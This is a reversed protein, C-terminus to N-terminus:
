SPTSRRAPVVLLLPRQGRRGPHGARRRRRHRPRRETRGRRVQRHGGPHPRKGAVPLCARHRHHRPTAMFESSSTATTPSCWWRCALGPAKVERALEVADMDGPQSRPSSSISARSAEAGAGAGRRRELCPHPRADPPPQARPVRRRHAREAPRGARAHVFRLPELCLIDQVRYPMLDQFGEFLSGTDQPGVAPHQGDSWARTWCRTPWRAHLRRHQRRERLQGPHRVSRPRSAAPPDRDHDRALRDDVEERTWALRMSNQSMELGSTAVGGANAAKAPGFLVGADLFLKCARSRPRCTPARPSWRSATRSLTRPTRATSRTRRPARSRATPRSPEVASQPRAHTPRTYTAGDFKEAYEQIRGRRVNKLEMVWALKEHDIGDHDYIFGDSDSLTVPKAGM